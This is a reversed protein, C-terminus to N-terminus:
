SNADDAGARTVTAVATREIEIKVNEAVRVILTKDKVNSVLGHIGGNTVIKDGTKVSNILAAQEKAKKQQPRIMLFYFIAIMCVFPVLMQGFGGQPQGQGTQAAADALITLTTTSIIM